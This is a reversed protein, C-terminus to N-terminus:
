NEFLGNYIKPIDLDFYSNSCGVTYLRTTCCPHAPQCSEFSTGFCEVIRFLCVNHRWIITHITNRYPWTNWIFHNLKAHETNYTCLFLLVITNIYTFKNKMLLILAEIISEIFVSQKVQLLWTIIKICVALTSTLKWPSTM